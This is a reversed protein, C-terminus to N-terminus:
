KDKIHKPNAESQTGSSVADGPAFEFAGADWTSNPRSKLPSVPVGSKPLGVVQNQYVPALSKGELSSGPNSGTGIAPSETALRYDFDAQDTGAFVTPWKPEGFKTGKYPTVLLNNAVKLTGSPYTKHSNVLVGGTPSPDFHALLCNQVYVVPSDTTATNIIPAGSHDIAAAKVNMQIILIDGADASVTLRASRGAGNATVPSGNVGGNAGLPVIDAVVAHSQNTSGSGEVIKLSGRSSLINYESLFPQGTGGYIATFGPSTRIRNKGSNASFAALVISRQSTTTVSVSCPRGNATAPVPVNRDFPWSANAPNRIAIVSIAFRVATPFGITIVHERLASTAPAWWEEVIAGGYDVLARRRWQLQSLGPNANALGTAPERWRTGIRIPSDNQRSMNPQTVQSQILGNAHSTWSTGFRISSANQKTLATVAWGGQAFFPTPSCYFNIGKADLSGSPPANVILRMGPRLQFLAANYFRSPVLNNAGDYFYKSKALGFFSMGLLALNVSEGVLFDYTFGCYLYSAFTLDARASAGAYSGTLTISFAINDISRISLGTAAGNAYVSQGVAVGALTSLGTVIASGHKLTGVASITKGGPTEGFIPLTHASDWFWFNGEQRVPYRMTTFLLPDASNAYINFGVAGTIPLISGVELLSGAAVSLTGITTSSGNAAVIPSGTTEGGDGATATVQVFYTRRPLSGGDTENLIPTAPYTIGQQNLKIPANGTGSGRYGTGNAPGICTNNVFYLEQLPNPAGGSAGNAAEACFNAIQNAANLSQQLQNGIVYYLGGNCIDINCSEIEGKNADIREGRICNYDIYGTRARTKILQTGNTKHSYVNDIILEDISGIYLNHTRGNPYGERYLETDFFHAFVGSGIPAYGLGTGQQNDHFYCGIVTISGLGPAGPPTSAMRIANVTGSWSASGWIELNAFTIGPRPAAAFFPAQGNIQGATIRTGAPIVFPPGGSVGTLYNKSFDIGSYRMQGAGRRLAMKLSPESGDGWVHLGGSHAGAKHPPTFLVADDLEMAKAGPVFDAILHAFPRSIVARPESASPSGVISLYDARSYRPGIYMTNWGDAATYRLYSSDLQQWSAYPIFTGDHYAGLGAPLIIEDATKASYIANAIYKYTAGTRTNTISKVDRPIPSGGRLFMAYTRQLMVYEVAM